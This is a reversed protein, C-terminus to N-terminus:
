DCAKVLKSCTVTKKVPVEVDKYCTVCVNYPKGCHDYKTVEKTYAVSRTEYVIKTETVTVLKYGPPPYNNAAATGVGALVLAAALIMRRM